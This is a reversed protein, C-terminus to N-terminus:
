SKRIIPDFTRIVEFSAFHVYSSIKIILIIIIIIRNKWKTKPYSTALDIGFLHKAM